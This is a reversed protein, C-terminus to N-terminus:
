TQETLEKLAKMVEEIIEPMPQTAMFESLLWKEIKIKDDTNRIEETMRESLKNFSEKLKGADDFKEMFEHKESVKIFILLHYWLDKEVDTFLQFISNKIRDFREDKFLEIFKDMLPSIYYYTIGYKYPHSSIVGMVYHPHRVGFIESMLSILAESLGKYTESSSTSLEEIRATIKEQKQFLSSLSKFGIEKKVKEYYDDLAGTFDEALEVIKDIVEDNERDLRYDRSFTLIIYENNNNDKLEIFDALKELLLEKKKIKRIININKLKLEETRLMNSIASLAGSLVDLEGTIKTLSAAGCEIQLIVVSNRLVLLPKEYEGRVVM